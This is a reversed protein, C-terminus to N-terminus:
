YKRTTAMSLIVFYFIVIRKFDAKVIKILNREDIAKLFWFSCITQWKEFFYQNKAIPVAIVLVYIYLAFNQVNQSGIVSNVTKTILLKPQNTNPKPSQHIPLIPFHKNKM